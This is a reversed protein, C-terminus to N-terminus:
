SCAGWAALAPHLAPRGAGAACGPRRPPGARSLLATPALAPPPPLPPRHAPQLRLAHRPDGRGVQRAWSETTWPSWPRWPSGWQPTASQDPSSPEAAAPNIRSHGSHRRRSDAPLEAAARRPGTRSRLSAGVAPRLPAGAGGQSTCIPREPFRLFRAAAATTWLRVWAMRRRCARWGGGLTGMKRGRRCCSPRACLQVGTVRGVARPVRAHASCHTCRCLGPRRTQRRYQRRRNVARM